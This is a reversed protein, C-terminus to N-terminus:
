NNEYKKEPFPVGSLYRICWNIFIASYITIWGYELGCAIIAIGYWLVVEGFYNPHRSYRWLGKKLFKGPADRVMTERIKLHERLQNDAIVEILFGILWVITGVIDTFFINVETDKSFIVM